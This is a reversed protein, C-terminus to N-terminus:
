KITHISYFWFREKKTNRNLYRKVVVQVKFEQGYILVRARIGYLEACSNPYDSVDHNYLLIWDHTNSTIIREAFPLFQLSVIRKTVGRTKHNIHRWGIRSFEIQKKGGDKIAYLYKNKKYMCMASNKLRTLDFYYFHKIEEKEAVYLPYNNWDKIINKVLKYLDGKSHAGFNQNQPIHIYSSNDYKYNTLDVWWIKPNDKQKKKLRSDDTPSDVFILISPEVMKKYRDLREKLENKPYPQINVFGEKTSKKYSEGCKIQVWIRCGLDKGTKDRVIIEGDIGDDNEQSYQQWGWNFERVIYKQVLILGITEQQYNRRNNNM